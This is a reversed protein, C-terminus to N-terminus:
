FFGGDSNVARLWFPEPAPDLKRPPVEEDTDIKRLHDPLANFAEFEPDVFIEGNSSPTPLSSPDQNM